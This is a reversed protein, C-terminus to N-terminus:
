DELNLGSKTTGITCNGEFTAGEALLADVKKTSGERLKSYAYCLKKFSEESDDTLFTIVTAQALWKDAKAQRKALEYGGLSSSKQEIYSKDREGINLRNNYLSLGDANSLKPANLVGLGNYTFNGDLANNSVRLKTLNQMNVSMDGFIKANSAYLEKLNFRSVLPAFFNSDSVNLKELKYLNIYGISSSYGLYNIYGQLVSGDRGVIYNEDGSVMALCLSHENEATLANDEVKTCDWEGVLLNKGDTFTNGALNLEVIKVPTTPMYVDLHNYSLDLKQLSPLKYIADLGKNSAINSHTIKISIASTLRAVQTLDPIDGVGYCEINKVKIDEQTLTTKIRDCIDQAGLFSLCLCIAVILKEM